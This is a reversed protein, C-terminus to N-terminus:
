TAAPVAVKPDGGVKVTKKPLNIVMKQTAHTQLRKREKIIVAANAVWTGRNEQVANGGNSTDGDQIPWSPLALAGEKSARGGIGQQKKKPTV